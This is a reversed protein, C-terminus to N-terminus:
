VPADHRSKDRWRRGFLLRKAYRLTQEKPIHTPIKIEWWPNVGHNKIGLQCFTCLYIINHNVWLGNETYEHFYQRRDYHAIYIDIWKSSIGVGCKSCENTGKKKIEKCPNNGYFPIVDKRTVKAKSLSHTLSTRPM